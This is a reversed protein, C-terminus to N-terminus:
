NASMCRRTAGSARRTSFGTVPGRRAEVVDGEELYVVKRTVPLLASVDSAIFHEGNGVGLLLPSGSRACILQDPNDAAIVGIAYAGVLEALAAQTAALLRIAARM